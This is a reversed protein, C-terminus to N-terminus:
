VTSRHYYHNLFSNYFWNLYLKVFQMERLLVLQAAVKMLRNNAYFISVGALSHLSVYSASM